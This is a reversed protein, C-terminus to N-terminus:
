NTAKYVVSSYGKGIRDAESFSFHKIKRRGVGPGKYISSMTLISNLSILGLALKIM